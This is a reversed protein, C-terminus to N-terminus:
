PATKKPDPSAARIYWTIQCRISAIKEPASTKETVMMTEANM